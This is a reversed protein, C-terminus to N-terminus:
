HTNSDGHTRTLTPIATPTASPTATATSTASATKTPTATEIPPVPTETPTPTVSPIGNGAVVPVGTIESLVRRLMGRFPASVQLRVAGPAPENVRIRLTFVGDAAVADGNAGDDHMAGLIVSATPGVRLLNVGVAIVTPDSIQSTVILDTAQGAPVTAPSVAPSGVAPTALLRASLAVAVLGTAACIAFFLASAHRTALGM